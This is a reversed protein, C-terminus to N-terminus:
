KITTNREVYLQKEITMIKDGSVVTKTVVAGEAHYNSKDFDRGLHSLETKVEKQAAINKHYTMSVGDIGDLMMDWYIDEGDKGDEGDEGDSFLSASEGEEGPEGYNIAISYTGEWYWENILDSCDYRFSFTGPQTEYYIEDSIVDPISPNNDGYADVYWDWEFGLFAEGDDGDRGDRGDQCGILAIAIVAIASVYMLKRM